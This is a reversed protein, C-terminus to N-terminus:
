VKRSGRRPPFAGRLLDAAELPGVDRPLRKLLSALRAKAAARPLATGAAGWAAERWDPISGLRAAVADAVLEFWRLTRLGFTVSLSPETARTSHWYGPPLFLASGPRMEIRKSTRPMRGVRDSRHAREVAVPDHPDDRSRNPAYSWSKAGILHVVLVHHGDFHKPVGSGAPSLYVNSHCMGGPLGLDRALARVWRGLTPHWEEVGNFALTAGAAYLEAAQVPDVAISRHAAGPPLTARISLERTRPWLRFDSFEELQSLAGLRRPSGHRVHPTM